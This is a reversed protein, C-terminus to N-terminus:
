YCAYIWESPRIGCVNADNGNIDVGIVIVEKEPPSIIQTMDYRVTSERSNKVILSWILVSEVLPHFHLTQSRDPINKTQWTTGIWSTGSRIWIGQLLM